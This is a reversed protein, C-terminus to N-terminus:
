MVIEVEPDALRSGKLWIEYRFIKEHPCDKHIRRKISQKGKPNEPPDLPSNNGNCKDEVDLWRLEVDETYGATGNCLDVVTWEINEKKRVQIRSPVVKAACPTDDVGTPTLFIGAPVIGKEADLPRPTNLLYFGGAVLLVVAGVAVITNLSRM